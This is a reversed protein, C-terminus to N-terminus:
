MWILEKYNVETEKIEKVYLYSLSEESTPIEKNFPSIGYATKSFHFKENPDAVGANHFIIHNRDKIKHNAWHFCMENLVKTQIGMNWAEWITTWMESTWTQLWYQMEPRFYVDQRKILYNYCLTSKKFVNKWFNATNNKTIYQAGICNKDNRVVLDTAIGAVGCFEAILQIGGKSMIYKSDLYSGVDSGYWINDNLFPEFNFRDLFIVDPDLYVYACDAEWPHQEFYKYMLYPKLSARYEQEAKEREDRYFHIKAKILGSEAMKRSIPNTTNNFCGILYHTDIDYGYKAFNNIQVLMQWLYYPVDPLPVIFKVKM